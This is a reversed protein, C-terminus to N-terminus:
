VNMVFWTTEHEGLLRKVRANDSRRLSAPARKTESFCFRRPLTTYLSRPPGCEENLDKFLLGGRYSHYYIRHIRLEERVFWLAASLMAEAWVDDHPSLVREFYVLLQFATADVEGHPHVDSPNGNEIWNRLQWAFLEARRVWDSQIEEILAEGEELDLDIRAWALTHAGKLRVPHFRYAFPSEGRRAQVLRQYARDHHEPFNLQLVLNYGPRSTQDCFPEWRSPESGWRGLTLHYELPDGSVQDVLDRTLRGGNGNARALARRLIPKELLRAFPTSRIAGLDLRTRAMFSLLLLAYKDKFYPFPTRGVPLSRVVGRVESLDM